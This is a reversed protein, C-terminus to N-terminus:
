SKTQTFKTVRNRVISKAQICLLTYWKQLLNEGREFIGVGNKIVKGSRPAVAVVLSTATMDPMYSM